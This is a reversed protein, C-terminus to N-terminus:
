RGQSVNTLDAIPIAGPLKFLVARDSPKLLGTGPAGSSKIEPSPSQLLQALSAREDDPVEHTSPSAHLRHYAIVQALWAAWSEEASMKLALRLFGRQDKCTLYIFTGIHMRRLSMTQYLVNEAWEHRVQGVAVKGKRRKAARAKSVGTAALAFAVGAVGFGGWSSGTDYKKCVFATRRDTVLVNAAEPLEWLDEWKGALARKASVSIWGQWLVTEGPEMSLDFDPGISPYPSWWEFESEAEALTILATDM